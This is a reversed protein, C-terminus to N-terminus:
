HPGDFNNLQCGVSWPQGATYTVTWAIASTGQKVTRMQCNPGIGQQQGCFSAAKNAHCGSTSVSLVSACQPALQYTTGAPLCMFIHMNKPADSYSNSQACGPGNGPSCTYTTAGVDTSEFGITISSSNLGSLTVKTTVTVDDAVAPSVLLLAFMAVGSTMVISQLRM